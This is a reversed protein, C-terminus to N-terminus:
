VYLINTKKCFLFLSRLNVSLLNPDDKILSLMVANVSRLHPQTNFYVAVTTLSITCNIMQICFSDTGIFVTNAASEQVTTTSHSLLWHCSPSVLHWCWGQHPLPLYYYCHCMCFANKLNETQVRVWPDGHPDGVIYSTTRFVKQKNKLWKKKKKKCNGSCNWMHIVYFLRYSQPM